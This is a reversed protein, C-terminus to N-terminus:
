KLPNASQLSHLNFSIKPASKEMQTFLKSQPIEHHGIAWPMAMLLKGVIFIMVWTRAISLAAGLLSDMFKLPGILMKGHFFKAFRGFIVEGLGAGVFIAVIIFVFKTANSHWSTVFHLSIFLGAFGGGIYGIASFLTSLLGARYGRVLAALTAILIVWDVWNKM